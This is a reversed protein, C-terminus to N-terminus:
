TRSSCCVLRIYFLIGFMNKDAVMNPFRGWINECVFQGWHSFLPQYKYLTVKFYCCIRLLDEMSLMTLRLWLYIDEASFLMTHWVPPSDEKPQWTKGTHAEVLKHTYDRSNSRWKYSMSWCTQWEERDCWQSNLMILWTSGNYQVFLWHTADIVSAAGGGMFLGM